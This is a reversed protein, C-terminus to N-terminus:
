DETKFGEGLVDQVDSIIIFASPDISRILGTLRRVEHRYVVCYVVEKQTKSYAGKAPFLTVGRDMEVTIRDAMQGARDSVVTFAKAAYAGKTIYDIIQSAVFVAVLTYLVKEKPIYFLSLGIVTADIALIIQGMSWGKIKYALRAIIDAGGTTGGARFVLGLGIGITVGAYLTALIYDLKAPVIWGWKISLEMMWLFFTLSLTGFITYYMAEKGFTKWGVIFLPINVVLTTLSPPIGLAYFFLLAIGTIGGEMLENTIVFYHLGFAYVATGFFIPLIIRIRERLNIRLM